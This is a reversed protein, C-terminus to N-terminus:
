PKGGARLKRWEGAWERATRWSIPFLRESIHSAAADLIAPQNTDLWEFAEAKMARNERHRANAGKRGMDARAKEFAGEDACEQGYEFMQLGDLLAAAEGAEYVAVLAAGMDGANVANAADIYYCLSLCLMVTKIDYKQSQGTQEWLKQAWASQELESLEQVATYAWGEREGYGLPTCIPNTLDGGLLQMYFAGSAVAFWMFKKSFALWIPLDEGHKEILSEHKKLARNKISDPLCYFGGASVEIRAPLALDQVYSFALRDSKQKRRSWTNGM